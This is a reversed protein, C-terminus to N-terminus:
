MVVTINMNGAAAAAGGGAAAAAAAAGVFCYGGRPSSSHGARRLIPLTAQKFTNRCGRLDSGRKVCGKSHLLTFVPQIGNM